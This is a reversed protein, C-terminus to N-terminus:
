SATFKSVGAYSASRRQVYLAAGSKYQPSGRLERIEYQKEILLAIDYGLSFGPNPSLKPEYYFNKKFSKGLLVNTEPSKM